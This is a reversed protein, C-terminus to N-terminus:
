SDGEVAEKAEEAAKEAEKAADKAADSVDEATEDMKKGMKEMAGEEKCAVLTTSFALVLALLLTKKLM